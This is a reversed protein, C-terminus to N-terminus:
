CSRQKKKDGAPTLLLALVLCRAVQGWHMTSHQLDVVCAMQVETQTAMVSTELSVSTYVVKQSSEEVANRDDQRPSEIVTKIGCFSFGDALTANKVPRPWEAANMESYPKRLWIETWCVNWPEM